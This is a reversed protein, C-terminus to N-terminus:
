ETFGWDSLWVAGTFSLAQAACHPSDHREKSTWLRIIFNFEYWDTWVNRCIAFENSTFDRNRVQKMFQDNAVFLLWYCNLCFIIFLSSFIKYRLCFFIEWTMASQNISSIYEKYFYGNGLTCRWYWSLYTYWYSDIYLVLWNWVLWQKKSMGHRWLWWPSTMPQWPFM